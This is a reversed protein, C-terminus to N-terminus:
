FKFNFFVLLIVEMIYFIELQRIYKLRKVIYIAQIGIDLLLTFECFACCSVCFYLVFFFVKMKHYFTQSFICHKLTKKLYMQRDKKELQVISNKLNQNSHPSLNQSSNKERTQNIFFFVNYNM